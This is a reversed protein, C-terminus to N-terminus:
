CPFAVGAEAFIAEAEARDVGAVKLFYAVETAADGGLMAAMGAAQLLGGILRQNRTQNVRAAVERREYNTMGNWHAKSVIAPRAITANSM